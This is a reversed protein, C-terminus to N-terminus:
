APRLSPSARWQQPSGGPAGEIQPLDAFRIEVDAELIKSLFAVSRTLRSRQRRRARGTRGAYRWRKQFSRADANRGSEVEVFEGVLQWQGGNLYDGVAKRQAELGLGSQGALRYLGSSVCVFKGNAM